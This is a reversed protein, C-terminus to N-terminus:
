PRQGGAQAARVESFLDRFRAQECSRGTDRLVRLARTATTHGRVLQTRIFGRVDEDSLKAGAPRRSPDPPADRTAQEVFERLTSRVPPDGADGVAALLHAATLVNLAQLSGGVVPRLRATVPVLLHEISPDATPPGIVVFRNDDSLYGAAAELDRACARLYAESLVAIITAHPDRRALDVFSRPQGAAPGPWQTHRNWWDQVATATAGVSDPTNPAFTAAYARIAASAPILGYGASSIWLTAHSGVVSPLTRAHHWHEGAYMDVAAAVPPGSMLRKTWAAFRQAPRHERLDDLRLGAPIDYGKRSACTVILHVPGPRRMPSAM